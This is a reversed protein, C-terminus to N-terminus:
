NLMNFTNRTCGNRLSLFFRKYERSLTTQKNNSKLHLSTNGDIVGSVMYFSFTNTRKHTNKRGRRKVNDDARQLQHRKKTLKRQYIKHTMPM